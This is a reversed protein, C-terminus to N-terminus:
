TNRCIHKLSHDRLARHHLYMIQAADQRARPTQLLRKGSKEAAIRQADQALLTL